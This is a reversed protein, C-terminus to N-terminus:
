DSVEEMQKECFKLLQYFAQKSARKFHFNEKHIYKKLPKQIIKFYGILARKNRIRIEQGNQLIYYESNLKSYSGWPNAQSYRKVFDKFFRQYFIFDGNYFIRAFGSSTGSLDIFDLNTFTSDGLTFKQIRNNGVVLPQHAETGITEKKLIVLNLNVNYKLFLGTFKQGAITITGRTWDNDTLYPHNQARPHEPIYLLGRYLLDDPGYANKANTILQEESLESNKNRDPAQAKVGSIFLTLIIVSIKFIEIERM